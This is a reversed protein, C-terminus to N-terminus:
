EYSMAMGKHSRTETPSLREWQRPGEGVSSDNPGEKWHHWLDLTDSRPGRTGTTNCASGMSLYVVSQSSLIM